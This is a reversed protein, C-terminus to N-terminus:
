SGSLATEGKTRSALWVGALVLAGAVGQRLTVRENLCVVGMITAWLPLLYYVLASRSPGVATLLRMCVLMPAATAILGIGLRWLTLSVPDMSAAASSEFAATLAISPLASFAQQGFALRLPDGGGIRRVYLAALAYSVRVGMMFLVGATDGTGDGALAPAALGAVGCFGVGLGFIRRLMLREDHFIM